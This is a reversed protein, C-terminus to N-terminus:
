FDLFDSAVETKRDFAIGAEDGALRQRCVGLFRAGVPTDNGSL